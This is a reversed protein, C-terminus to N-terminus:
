SYRLNTSLFRHLFSMSSCTFSIGPGSVSDEKQVTEMDGWTFLLSDTSFIMLVTTTQRIGGSISDMKMKPKWVSMMVSTLTALQIAVSAM